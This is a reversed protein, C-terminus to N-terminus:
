VPIPPSYTTGIAPCDPGLDQPLDALHYLIATGDAPDVDEDCDIDGFTVGLDSEIEPCDPQQLPDLDSSWLILSLTDVPTVAGDCDLDGKIYIPVDRVGDITGSFGSNSHWDGEVTNGAPFVTASVDLVFTNSGIELTVAADLTTSRGDQTVTGALTGDNADGPCDFDGTLDTGIQTLQATCVGSFDGSMTFTWDGTLDVAARATSARATVLALVVLAAIALVTPLKTRNSM